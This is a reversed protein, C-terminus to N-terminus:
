IIIIGFDYKETYKERYLLLYILAIDCKMWTGQRKRKVLTQARQRIHCIFACTVASYVCEGRGQGSLLHGQKGTWEQWWTFIHPEKKKVKKESKM